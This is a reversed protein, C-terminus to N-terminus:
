FLLCRTAPFRPRHSAVSATSIGAVSPFTVGVVAVRDAFSRKQWDVEVDDCLM